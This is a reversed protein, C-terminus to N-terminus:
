SDLRQYNVLEAQIGLRDFMEQPNFHTQTHMAAVVSKANAMSVGSDWEVMTVFNYRNEGSVQKLVVEFLFGPLVKLLGHTQRVNNLFEDCAAEPVVFRDVRYIHKAQVSTHSVNM